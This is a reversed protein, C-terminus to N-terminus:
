HSDKVGDVGSRGRKKGCICQGVDGEGDVRRWCRWLEKSVVGDVYKARM